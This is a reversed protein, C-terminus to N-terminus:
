AQSLGPSTGGDATNNTTDPSTAHHSLGGVDGLVTAWLHWEFRFNRLKWNSCKRKMKLMKLKSIELEFM